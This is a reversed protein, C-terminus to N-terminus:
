IEEYKIGKVKDDPQKPFWLYKTRESITQNILTSFKQVDEASKFHLLITKFGTQDKNGFELGGSKRWEAYSDNVPKDSDPNFFQIEDEGFGTSSLDINMSKIELLEQKLLDYDWYSFEQSKNEMIRFAKIQKDTLDDAWIIPVEKMELKIAAELRTHGAVIINDKDIIIPVKFGFEKISKMVVEVAKENKRPNKNYPIIETVPIM